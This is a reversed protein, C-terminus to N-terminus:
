YTGFKVIRQDLSSRFGTAPTTQFRSIREL